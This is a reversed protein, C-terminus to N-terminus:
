EIKDLADYDVYYGVNKRMSLKKKALEQRLERYEMDIATWKNKEQQSIDESALYDEIIGIRTNIQRIIFLAEEQEVCNKAQLKYEYLDAEISKLGQTKLSKFLSLESLYNDELNAAESIVENFARELSKLTDDICKIDLISGAYVRADMLTRQAYRINLKIDEYVMLAWQLIGLNPMTEPESIGHLNLCLNEKCHILTDKIDLQNPVKLMGIADEDKYILSAVNSLIQKFAFKIIQSYNISNRLKIDTDKEAILEAIIDKVRETSETDMISYIEEVIYAALQEGTIDNDLVKSDIELAYRKFQVEGQDLLISIIDQDSIFPDVKIGFIMKDTNRTFYVNSCFLEGKDTSIMKNLIKALNLLDDDTPEAGESYDNKIKTCLPILENEYIYKIDDILIM